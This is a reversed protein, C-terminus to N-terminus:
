YNTIGCQNSYVISFLFIFVKRRILAQGVENLETYVSVLRRLRSSCPSCFYSDATLLEMDFSAPFYGKFSTKFSQDATGVLQQASFWGAALSGEKGCFECVLLVSDSPMSVKHALAKNQFPSM